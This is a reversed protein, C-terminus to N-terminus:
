LAFTNFGFVTMVPAMQIFLGELDLKREMAFTELMYQGM